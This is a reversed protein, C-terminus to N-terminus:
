LWYPAPQAVAVLERRPHLREDLEAGVDAGVVKRDVRAAVVARRLPALLLAPVVNSAARQEGALKRDSIQRAAVLVRRESIDAAPRDVGRQTQNQVASVM